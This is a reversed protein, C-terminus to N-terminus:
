RAGAADFLGAKQGRAAVRGIWGEAARPLSVPGDGPALAALAGAAAADWGAPLAVARLRADPDAGARLRRLAVGDWVTGQIRAM